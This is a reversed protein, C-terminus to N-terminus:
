LNLYMQHQLVTTTQVSVNLLFHLEEVDGRKTHRISISGFNLLFEFLFLSVKSRRILLLPFTGGFRLVLSVALSPRSLFFKWLRLFLSVSCASSPIPFTTHTGYSGWECCLHTDPWTTVPPWSLPKQILHM